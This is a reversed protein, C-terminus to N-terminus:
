TPAPSVLWVELPVNESMSANDVFLGTLSTDLFVAVSGCPIAVSNSTNLHLTVPQPTYVILGTAPSANAPFVIQTGTTNLPAVAELCQVVVDEM